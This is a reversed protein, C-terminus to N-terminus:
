VRSEQVNQRKQDAMKGISFFYFVLSLSSAFAYSSSSASGRFALSVNIRAEQVTSNGAYKGVFSWHIAILLQLQLQYNSSCPKQNRSM